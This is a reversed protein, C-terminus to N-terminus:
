VLFYGLLGKSIINTKELYKISDIIYKDSFKKSKEKSWKRFGKIIDLESQYKLEKILIMITSLCELQKDDNINNVYDVSFKIAQEINNIDEDIRKNIIIKYIEDYVLNYNEINYYDKFEIINRNIINIDNSYPGYKHKTFKFYDKKYFFNFFYCTKQLRMLKKDEIRNNLESKIKAVIYSSLYIKPPKKPKVNIKINNSNSPEYVTIDIKKSIQNFEREIEKRVEYWSLGGNGSGLPPMAVSSINYSLLKVLLDKLGEQIYEIRSPERWRDKTPFNAIIKGDEKFFFVKGIKLKGKRCAEMYAKNNEPYAKQFQYALGKGMYGECNVTNVLCYADSELLNGTTYNIMIISFGNRM